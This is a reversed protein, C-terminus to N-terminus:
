FGKILARTKVINPVQFHVGVQATVAHAREEPKEAFGQKRDSRKKMKLVADDHDATFRFLYKKEDNRPPRLGVFCDTKLHRHVYLTKNVQQHARVLLNNVCTNRVIQLLANPFVLVIADFSECLTVFNM